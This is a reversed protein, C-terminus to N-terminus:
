VGWRESSAASQVLCSPYIFWISGWGGPSACCVQCGALLCAFVRKRPPIYFLKCVEPVTNQCYVACYNFNCSTVSSMGSSQCIWGSGILRQRVSFMDTHLCVFCLRSISFACGSGWHLSFGTQLSSLSFKKRKIFLSFVPIFWSTLM